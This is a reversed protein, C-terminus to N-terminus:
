LKKNVEMKMATMIVLPDNKKIVDGVKVLIKDIIGTMPAVAAKETSATSAEDGSSIKQVPEVKFEVIESSGHPLISVVDGTLDAGFSVLQDGIRCRISKLTDLSQLDTASTLLQCIITENNM